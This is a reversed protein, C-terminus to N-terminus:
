LKPSEILRSYHRDRIKNIGSNFSPRQLNPVTMVHPSTHSTASSEQTRKIYKAERRRDSRSHVEDPSQFTPREFRRSKILEVMEKVREPSGPSCPLLHHLALSPSNPDASPEVLAPMSQFQSFEVSRSSNPFRPFMCATRM